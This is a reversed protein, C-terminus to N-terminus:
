STYLLKGVLGDQPQKDVLTVPSRFGDNINALLTFTSNRWGYVGLFLDCHKGTQANPICYPSLMDAQITVADSGFAASAWTFNHRSPHYLPPAGIFLDADGTISSLTFVVDVLPQVLTYHYYEMRNGGVVGRFPIGDKLSITSDLHSSVIQYSSASGSYAGYVGVVLYCYSRDACMDQMKDHSISLVEGGVGSSSLVFSEVRLDTTSFFPRQQWTAGIYLDVDGQTVTATIKTDQYDLGPRLFYLDMGHLSVSGSLPIGAVLSPVSEDNNYTAIISYSASTVGQVDVFVTSPSTASASCGKDALAISPIEMVTQTDSNFRWFYNTESPLKMSSRDTSDQNSNGSGSCTIFVNVHGSLVTVSFKLVFTGSQDIPLRYYDNSNVALEGSEAAGIRITSAALSSTLTLSYDTSLVGYIGIRLQCGTAGNLCPYYATDTHFMRITEDGTGWHISSYDYRLFSPKSGDVTVYVDANGNSPSMTLKLDRTSGYFNSFIYYNWTLFPVSDLMPRGDILHTATAELNVLLSYSADRSGVIAIYYICGTCASTDVTPDIRLIDSGFDHSFWTSEGEGPGPHNLSTSVYMDPDGSFTTLIIKLIQDAGNFFFSFYDVEGKSVHDSISVGPQLPLTSQEFSISIQYAAFYSLSEIGIIYSCPLPDNRAITLVDRDMGFTSYLYYTENPLFSRRSTAHGGLGLCIDSSTSSPCKNVYMDVNGVLSTVRLDLSEHGAQVSVQYFRWTNHLQEYPITDSQPIKELLKLLTPASPTSAYARVTYTANNSNGGVGIYVTSGPLVQTLTVIPLNGTSLSDDRITDPTHSTPQSQTRSIFISPSGEFVTLAATVSIDGQTSTLISKISYFQFGNQIVSGSQPLGDSLEVTTDTLSVVISYRSPQYGFVYISIWCDACAVVEPIVISDAVLGGLWSKYDYNDSNVETNMKAYLDTDGYYPTVTVTVQQSEKGMQYRYYMGDHDLITGEVPIGATLAKTGDFHKAIISFASTSTSVGYVSIYFVNGFRRCHKPDNYSIEITTEGNLASFNYHNILRSPVGSDIGTPVMHCSVFVDLEANGRPELVISLGQNLISNDDLRFYSYSESSVSGPVSVGEALSTVIITSQPKVNRLFISLFLFIFLINIRIHNYVSSTSM